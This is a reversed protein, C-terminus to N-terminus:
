NEWTLIVETATGTSIVVYCSDVSDGAMFFPRPINQWVEFYALGFANDPWKKKFSNPDTGAGETSDVFYITATGDAIVEALKPGVSKMTAFRLGGDATFKYEGDPLAFASTAILLVILVLLTKLTKM